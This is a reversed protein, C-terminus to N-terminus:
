PKEQKAQVARSQELDPWNALPRQVADELAGLAQHLKAQGDALALESTALELQATLVELRDAAGAKFQQEVSEQQKRQTALLAEANERSKAAVQYVAVARDIEAIVHAQLAEFSAATHKRRAEAEAIPGQNRNLVPLEVGFGLLGWKQLGQDYEYGTNLHIDPYQKAMEIKLASESAAYDALAALVDPRRQLAQRRVEGSIPRDKDAPLSTLDYVMEVGKLAGFPVGIAEAVRARAEVQQREADSVDLRAKQLLLRAPTIETSAVAGAARRQELSAVVQEQLALQKRLLVERRSASVLEIVSVRLQGRVQWATASINLRASESLHRAQEVRAGRKGATEIPLDVSAPVVWAPDPGPNFVYQPTFGLTPNPRAGATVIGARAEAWAARAVDLSPQYYFAALTLMEFDWQPAPWAPLEHNLNTVLFSKLGPNDLSRDELRAATESPSLPQSQFRACGALLGLLFIVPWLKM